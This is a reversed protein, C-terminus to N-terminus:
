AKKEVLCGTLLLLKRWSEYSRRKQAKVHRIKDLEFALSFKNKIVKHTERLPSLRGIEADIRNSIEQLSLKM